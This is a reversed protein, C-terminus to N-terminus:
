KSTCTAKVLHKGFNTIEVKAGSDAVINVIDNNHVDMRLSEGAKLPIDNIKGKKALAVVYFENSPDESSIVCDADVTWFMYNVLLQPENPEMDFVITVGDQLQHTVTSHASSSILATACLLSMTMKRLM